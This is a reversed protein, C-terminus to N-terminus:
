NGERGATPNSEVRKIAKLERFCVIRFYETARTTETLVRLRDVPRIQRKKTLVVTPRHVLKADTVPSM